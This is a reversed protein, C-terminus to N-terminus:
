LFLFWNGVWRKYSGIELNWDQIFPPPRQGRQSESWRRKVRWILNLKWEFRCKARWIETVKVATQIKFLESGSGGEGCLEMSTLSSTFEAVVTTPQFCKQWRGLLFVLLKKRLIKLKVKAAIVWWKFLSSASFTEKRGSTAIFFDRIAPILVPLLNKMMGSSIEDCSTVRYNKFITRRIFNM